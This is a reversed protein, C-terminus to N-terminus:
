ERVFFFKAKHLKNGQAQETKQLRGLVEVLNEKLYQSREELNQSQNKSEALGQDTIDLRRLLEEARENNNYKFKEFEQDATRLRDLLTSNVNLLSDKLEQMELLGNNEQCRIPIETIDGSRSISMIKEWSLVKISALNEEENSCMSSSMIKIETETLVRNYINLKFLDGGFVTDNLKIETKYVERNGLGILIKGGLGSLTREKTVTTGILHGDLYARTRGDQGTWTLCVHFWTGIGRTYNSTLNLTTGAVWNDGNDALTIVKYIQLVVPRSSKSFLKKIWTCVSLRNISNWYSVNWDPLQIYDAATQGFRLATNHATTQGSSVTSFVTIILVLLMSLLM